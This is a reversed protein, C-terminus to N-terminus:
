KGETSKVKNKIPVQRKSLHCVQFYSTDGEQVEAFFSVNQLRLLEMFAVDIDMVVDSLCWV